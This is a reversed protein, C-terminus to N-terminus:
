FTRYALNPRTEDILEQYSTIDRAQIICDTYEIIIRLKGMQEPIM